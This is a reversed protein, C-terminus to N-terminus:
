LKLMMRSVAEDIDRPVAQIGDALGHNTKALREACCAQLGLGLDMIAIPNGTGYTYVKFIIGTYYDFNALDGITKIGLNILKESTKKGVLFLDSIPLPYMKDQIEHNYLTHIKNPKSFDSAM